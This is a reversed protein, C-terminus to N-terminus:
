IERVDGIEKRVDGIEVAILAGGVGAEVASLGVIAGGGIIKGWNLSSSSNNNKLAFDTPKFINTLQPGSKSKLENRYTNIMAAQTKLPLKSFDSPVRPDNMFGPPLLGLPDTM